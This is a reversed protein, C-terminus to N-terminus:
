FLFLFSINIIATVISYSFSTFTAARSPLFIATIVTFLKMTSNLSIDVQAQYAERVQTVYDRLNLVSKELRIVRGLLIKFSKITKTDILKNENELLPGFSKGLLKYYKKLSMLRKRLSIIEKVSDRRVRTILEEELSSIDSEIDELYKSDDYTLDNLFLYLIKPLCIGESKNILRVTAEEVENLLTDDDAFFFLKNKTLCIKIMHPAGSIGIREPLRLSFYDLEEHSEFKTATGIIFDPASSNVSFFKKAIDQFMLSNEFILFKDEVEDTLDDPSIKTLRKEEVRYIM